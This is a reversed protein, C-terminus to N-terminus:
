RSSPGSAANVLRMLAATLRGEPEALEDMVTFHDTGDVHMLWGPLGAGIWAAHYNDTQRIMEPLEDGGVAFCVDGAHDPLRRIPSNRDASATDMGVAGNFRTLRIPELEYQGSILLTAGVDPRGTLMAALHAGASSGAVIVPGPGAGLDGLHRTLWDLAAHMEAVIGDLTTEPCLTYEVVAVNVGHALPGRAVFSEGEKDCWQWYGGHIFFLTPRGPPNAPFFDLRHRPGSGYRLDRLVPATRYLVASADAWRELIAAYGPVHARNDYACDLEAQTMGRYIAEGPM